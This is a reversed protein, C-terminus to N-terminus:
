KTIWSPEGLGMALYLKSPCPAFKIHKADDLFGAWHKICRFRKEKAAAMLRGDLLLCASLDGHYANIRSRGGALAPDTPWGASQSCWKLTM